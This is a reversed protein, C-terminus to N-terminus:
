TLESLKERCIQLQKLWYDVQGAVRKLEKKWYAVAERRDM